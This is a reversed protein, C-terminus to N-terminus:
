KSGNRLSQLHRIAEPDSKWRARRRQLNAAIESLDGGRLASFEEIRFQKMHWLGAGDRWWRGIGRARIPTSFMYTSLEKAISRSALCNHVVEGDELHVPVPDNEGGIVIPIGDLTGAQAVPGYQPETHRKRGPFYLLRSGRATRLEGSANDEALLQDIRAHARRAEDPGEHNRVDNARKRVKPLAEFEVRLVPQTSGGEVHSLHVSQREGLVLSLNYLYEALRELPITDPTYADIHFRLEVPDAVSPNGSRKRGKTPM